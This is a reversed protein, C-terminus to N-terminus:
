PAFSGLTSPIGSTEQGYQEDVYKLFGAFDSFDRSTVSAGSPTTYEKVMARQPNAALDDLVLQRLASWSTFAM